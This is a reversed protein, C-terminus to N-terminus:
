VNGAMPSSYSWYVVCPAPWTVAGAPECLRLHAHKDMRVNEELLQM